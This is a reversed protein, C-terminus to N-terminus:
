LFLIFLLSSGGSFTFFSSFASFDLLFLNDVVSRGVGTTFLVLIDKANAVDQCCEVISEDM